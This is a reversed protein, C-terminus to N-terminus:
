PHQSRVLEALRGFSLGHGYQIGTIINRHIKNHHGIGQWRYNSKDIEVFM